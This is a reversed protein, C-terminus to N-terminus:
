VLLIDVTMKLTERDTVSEKAIISYLITCMM